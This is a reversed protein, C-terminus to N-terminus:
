GTETATGAQSGNTSGPDNTGGREMTRVIQGDKGVIALVRRVRQPYEYGCVKAMEIRLDELLSLRERGTLHRTRDIGKENPDRRTITLVREVKM